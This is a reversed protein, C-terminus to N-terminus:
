PIKCINSAYVWKFHSRSSRFAANSSCRSRIASHGTALLVAHGPIFGQNTTVGELQGNNIHLDTVKCGFRVEGGMTEIHQRISKVVAPLRNSGLHPRHEYIVSPKGKCDAFLKLVRNVEPGSGRCTLKGDSFTGAGGEGFLYNSEPEFRGGSDFEKVDKIRETVRTGRELVLPQYGQEALFYAAVLGAPGSGIVIPRQQLGKSGPTPIEFPPEQYPEVTFSSYAFEARPKWDSPPTVEANYVFKLTKKNRVDLSKRLIRCGLLQDPPLGLIDSLRKHLLDDGEEVPISVNNIRFPM